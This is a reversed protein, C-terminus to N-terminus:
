MYVETLEDENTTCLNKYSEEDLGVMYSIQGGKKEKDKQEAISDNVIDVM